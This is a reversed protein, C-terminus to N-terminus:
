EQEMRRVPAFQRALGTPSTMPQKSSARAPEHELPTLGDILEHDNWPDARDEPRPM